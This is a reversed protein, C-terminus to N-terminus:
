SKKDGKDGTDGKDGKDGLEEAKAKIQSRLTDIDGGGEQFKLFGAFGVGIASIAGLYLGFARDLSHFGILLRLVVLLAVAVGGALYVPPMDAPLTVGPAFRRLAVWVILALTIFFPLGGTLFSIDWANGGVSFGGASITFWDFFTSILFVIGAGFLVKDAKTLKTLDM